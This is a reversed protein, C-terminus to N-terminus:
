LTLMSESHCFKPNELVIARKCSKRTDVHPIFIKPNFRFDKKCRQMNILENQLSLEKLTQNKFDIFFRDYNLGQYENKTQIYNLINLLKKLIYLDIKSEM